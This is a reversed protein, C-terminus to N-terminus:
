DHSVADNTCTCTDSRPLRLLDILSKDNLVRYFPVYRIDHEEVTSHSRSDAVAAM